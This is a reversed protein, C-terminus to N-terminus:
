GGRLGEHEGADAGVKVDGWAALPEGRASVVVAGKEFPTAKLWRADSGAVWGGEGM